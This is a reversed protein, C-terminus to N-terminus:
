EFVKKMKSKSMNDLNKGHFYQVEDFFCNHNWEKIVKVRHSVWLDLWM